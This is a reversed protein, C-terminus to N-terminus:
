IEKTWTSYVIGDDKKQEGTPKFGFKRYIVFAVESTHENTELFVSKAKVKIAKEMAAQMLRKGIGNGRFHERVDFAFFYCRKSDAQVVIQGVITDKLMARIECWNGDLPRECLIVKSLDM